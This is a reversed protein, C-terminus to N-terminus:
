AAKRARNRALAQKGREVLSNAVTREESTPERFDLMALGRKVKPSARKAVEMVLAEREAKSLPKRNEATRRRANM